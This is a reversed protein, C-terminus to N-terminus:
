GETSCSEKLTKEVVNGDPLEESFIQGTFRYVEVDGRKWADSPLGAKICTHSLFEEGNWGFEVAVQPLLLGSAWSCRVMLGHTGVQIKEPLEYPHRVTIKEPTSLVTVEFVVVPLEEATLPKFRPDGFAAEEASALLAKWLSHVPYPFGICGRLEREPYTEITTFVGAKETFKKTLEKLLEDPFPEVDLKEAVRARAARVLM